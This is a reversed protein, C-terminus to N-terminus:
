QGGSEATGANLQAELQEATLGIVVSGDPSGRVGSRPIQVLKGSELKITVTDAAVSDVTGITAGGTGKVTAGAAIAADAAAASKEIEANLQAQTMGFLLKGGSATFSGKPLLVQHKDTKVQVNDGQVAVVTGVAGGSADTIQMGATIGPPAQAAAPALPTAAALAVATITGVILRM